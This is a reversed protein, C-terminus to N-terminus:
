MFIWIFKMVQDNLRGCFLMKRFRSNTKIIENHHQKLFNFFTWIRFLTNEFTSCRKAFTIWPRNFSKRFIHIDCEKQIFGDRVFLTTLYQSLHFFINGFCEKNILNGSLTVILILTCVYIKILFVRNILPYLQLNTRANAGIRVILPRQLCIDLLIQHFQFTMIKHFLKTQLLNCDIRKRNFAGKQILHHRDLTMSDASMKCLFHTM